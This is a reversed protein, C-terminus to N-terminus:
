PVKETAQAFCANSSEPRSRARSSRSRMPTIIPLASPPMRKASSCSPTKRVCPMRATSGPRASPTNPPAELQLMAISTPAIPGFLLLAILQADPVTAM